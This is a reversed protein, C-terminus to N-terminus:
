RWTFGDRWRPQCLHYREGLSSRSCKTRDGQDPQAGSRRGAITTRPRFAKKRRAALENERMLRAVRNEGCVVGEQRLQQTIRPSGYRGKHEDYVRQIQKLLKPTAEARLSQETGVWQYYGTRSVSLAVCCEKVPFQVSLEEIM